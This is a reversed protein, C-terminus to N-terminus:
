PATVVSHTSGDWQALFKSAYQKNEKTEDPSVLILGCIEKAAAVYSPHANAPMHTLPSYESMPYFTEPKAPVLKDDLKAKYKKLLREHRKQVWKLARKAKIKEARDRRIAAKWRKFGHLMVHHQRWAKVFRKLVEPLQKRGRTEYGHFLEEGDRDSIFGDENWALGTGYCCMIHEIVRIRDSYIGNFRYKPDLCMAFWDGMTKNKKAELRHPKGFERKSDADITAGWASYIYDMYEDGVQKSLDLIAYKLNEWDHLDPNPDHRSAYHLDSYWQMWYALAQPHKEFFARREVAEKLIRTMAETYPNKMFNGHRLRPVVGSEGIHDGVVVNRHPVSEGWGVHSGV